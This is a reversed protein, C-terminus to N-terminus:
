FVLPVGLLLFNSGPYKQVLIKGPSDDPDPGAVRITYQAQEEVDDPQNLIQVRIIMYKTTARGSQYLFDNFIVPPQMTGGPNPTPDLADALLTCTDDYMTVFLTRPIVTVVEGPNSEVIYDEGLVRSDDVQIIVQRSAENALVKFFHGQATGRLPTPPVMADAYGYTQNLALTPLNGDCETGPTIKIVTGNFPRYPAGKGDLVVRANEGHRDKYRIFHSPDAQNPNPPNTDIITGDEAPNLGDPPIPDLHWDGTQNDWHGNLCKTGEDLLERDWDGLLLGNEIIARIEFEFSRTYYLGCSGYFKREWSFNSLKVSRSPLAWLPADNVTDIMSAILNLDLFPVNQEIRITPRNKDFEVQPGRMIEHASNVIAIGYMDVTAEETTKAFGGSIKAPQLLPHQQQSDACNAGKEDGGPGSSSDPPKTSATLEVEFYKNPEKELIPTVTAGQRFWADLDIDDDVIWPSGPVPLGPCNLATNPGDTSECKVLYSIRYDRHGEDDRTCSWSRQGPVLQATM